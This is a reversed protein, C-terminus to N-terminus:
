ILIKSNKWKKIFAAHGRKKGFSIRVNKDTLAIFTDTDKTQVANLLQKRFELLSLDRDAEDVPMLSKPTEAFANISVVFFTIFLILRQLDM